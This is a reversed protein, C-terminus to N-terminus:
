QLSAIYTAWIEPKIQIPAKILILTEKKALIVSQPGKVSTGIFYVTADDAVARETANFGAALDKVEADPNNSFNDPLPQESVTIQVRELTDVYAFVPNSDPPSVRGWGGLQQITKGRPLLTDFTPSTGGVPSTSVTQTNKTTSPSQKQHAFMYGGTFLVVLIIIRVLWKKTKAPLKNTITATSNRTHNITKQATTKLKPSGKSVLQKSHKAALPVAVHRVAHVLAAATQKANDLRSPTDHVNILPEDHRHSVFNLENAEQVVHADQAPKDEQREPPKVSPRPNARLSHNRYKM